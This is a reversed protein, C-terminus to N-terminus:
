QPSNCQALLLICHADILFQNTIEPCGGSGLDGSLSPVNLIEPLNAFREMFLDAPVFLMVQLETSDRYIVQSSASLWVCM